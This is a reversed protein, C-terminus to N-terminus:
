LEEGLVGGEVERGGAGEVEGGGQGKLKEAGQGKLGGGLASADDSNRKYNVTTIFM